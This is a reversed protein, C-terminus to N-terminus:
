DDSDGRILRYGLYIMGAVIALAILNFDLEFGM